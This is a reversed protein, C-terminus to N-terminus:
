REPHGTSFGAAPGAHDYIRVQSRTESSWRQDFFPMFLPSYTDAYLQNRFLLIPLFHYFYFSESVGPSIETVTDYESSREGDEKEFGASTLSEL